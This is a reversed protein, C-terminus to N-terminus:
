RPLFVVRGRLDEVTGGDLDMTMGFDELSSFGDLQERVAVIRRATARDIGSLRELVDPPASNVDVLGADMAGTRDPRGIGLELALEPQERAIRLAEERSALRERAASMPAAITEMRRVYRPRVVLSHGIGLVWVCLIAVGAVGAADSDEEVLSPALFAAGAAVAYLVAYLKWRTVHARTGAYAFGAWIGLGFPVLSAIVWLGRHRRAAM